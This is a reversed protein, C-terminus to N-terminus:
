KSPTFGLEKLLAHAGHVRDALFLAFRIDMCISRQADLYQWDSLIAEPTGDFLLGVLEGKANLTPSGSNGGTTDLTTTYNVPVDKIVEDIWPGFAKSAFVKRLAAPVNFPKKGTNKKMLQSLTTQYLHTKKTQTNTYDVVRGFNVRLTFNADWYNPKIVEKVLRPIWIAGLVKYFPDLQKKKFAQYERDYRLALQILGDREQTLQKYSLKFLGLRRKAVSKSNYLNYTWSSGFIMDVAVRLPDKSPKSGNSASAYLSAFSVGDKQALAKYLPHQTKGYNLMWTLFAPRQKAPLKMGMHLITTMMAKEGELTSLREVFRASRYVRYMNKKRYCEGERRLDPTNKVQSWRVVNYITSFSRQLSSQFMGMFVAKDSIKEFDIYSQKIDALLKLYAQQKQKKLKAKLAVLDAKKNKLVAFKKMQKALDAYYKIGNMLGARLNQYKRAGPGKTPLSKYIAMYMAGRKKMNKQFRQARYYTAHRSTRGPFGMVISLDGKRVGTKAVKLHVKSSYPINKKSFAAGKGNPSVYARLFTFDATHRPYRWNDIDGGYKGLPGPPAYVLRVDRIRQYAALTYGAGSNLARVDCVRGPAKECAAELRRKQELLLLYRKQPTLPKTHGKLVSLVKDTVDEVKVLAKADYGPCHIEDGMKNAVYGKKMIGKKSTANLMALCSYAVHHNTVILGKPSVFSGTGGRALQVIAPALQQLQQDTLKFGTKKLLARPWKGPEYMLFMGEEASAMPSLLMIVLWLVWPRTYKM